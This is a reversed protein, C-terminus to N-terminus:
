QGDDSQTLPFMRDLQDATLEARAEEESAGNRKALYYAARPSFDCAGGGRRHPFWYGGCDCRLKTNRWKSQSRLFGLEYLFVM